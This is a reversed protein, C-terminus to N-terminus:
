AVKKRDMMPKKRRGEGRARAAELGAMTRESSIREFEAISSSVSCAPQPTTTDGPRCSSSGRRSGTVLEILEKLLSWLPRCWM